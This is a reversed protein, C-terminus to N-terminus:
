DYSGGGQIIELMAEELRFILEVIAEEVRFILELM